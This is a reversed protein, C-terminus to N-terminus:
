SRDGREPALWWELSELLEFERQHADALLVRLAEDDPSGQLAHHIDAIADDIVRLNNELARITEDPLEARRAALLTVLRMHVDDVGDRQRVQNALARSAPDLSGPGPHGPDGTIWLTTGVSVAVLAAASVAAAVPRPFLGAFPGPEAASWTPAPTTIRQQIGNWLEREPEVAAPLARARELLARLEPDLPEADDETDNRHTRWRAFWSM